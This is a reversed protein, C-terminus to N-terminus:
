LEKHQVVCINILSLNISQKLIYEEGDQKLYTLYVMQNPLNLFIIVIELLFLM